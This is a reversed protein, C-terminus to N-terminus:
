SQKVAILLWEIIYLRPALVIKIIDPLWTGLVFIIWLTAILRMAIRMGLADSQDFGLRSEEPLKPAYRKLWAAVVCVAIPPILFLGMGLVNNWFDYQLKEQIVLPIQEKAFDTGSRIASLLNTLYETLVAQLKPDM